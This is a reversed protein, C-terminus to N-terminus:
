NNNEEIRNLYMEYDTLYVLLKEYYKESSYGALYLNIENIWEHIFDDEDDYQVQWDDNMLAKFVKNYRKVFGGWDCVISDKKVGSVYDTQEYVFKCFKDYNDEPNVFMDESTCVTVVGVYTTDYSDFDSYNNIKCFESIKM